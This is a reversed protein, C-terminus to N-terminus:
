LTPRHPAGRAAAAVFIGISAVLELTEELFFHPVGPVRGLPREFLETLILVVASAALVRGWPQALAAWGERWITRIHWLAYVGFAAPVGIVVIGALVRWGLAYNANVFFTMKIVKVGLLHRDADLEGIILGVLAAVTLVDFPSVRGGPARALHRAILLVGGADLIVQLWEVVGDEITLWHALAPDVLAIAFLIAVAGLALGAALTEPRFRTRSLTPM